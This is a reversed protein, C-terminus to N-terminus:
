INIHYPITTPPVDTAVKVNTFTGIDTSLKWSEWFSIDFMPVLIWNKGQHLWLEVCLAGGSSIGSSTHVFNETSESILILVHNLPKQSMKKLSQMRGENRLHKVFFVLFWFFDVKEGGAPGVCHRLKCIIWVFVDFFMFFCSFLMLFWFFVVKEGGAPGVCHWVKCIILFLEFFTMYKSWLVCSFHLVIVDTLNLRFRNELQMKRYIYKQRFHM